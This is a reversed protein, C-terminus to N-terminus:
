TSTSHTYAMEDEDVEGEKGGEYRATVRSVCANRLGNTPVGPFADM